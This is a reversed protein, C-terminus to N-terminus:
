SPLEPITNQYKQIFSQADIFEGRTPLKEYGPRRKLGEDLLTFIQRLSEAIQPSDIVMGIAEKGFSIISVKNGFVSWEVPATYDNVLYWTRELLMEKDSTKIDAPVEPADPTFVYRHIGAKPALNRIKHMFDFGFFRIDDRTKLFYIEKKEQIQLKFIEEIGSKGRYFRVGPQEHTKHYKDILEPIKSNLNKEQLDIRDRNARALQGLVSPSNATYVFKKNHKIKNALGKNVLEDLIKYTNSRAEEIEISFETPSIFEFELLKLYAKAQQETLGAIALENEM